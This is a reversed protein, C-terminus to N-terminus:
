FRNDDIDLRVLVIKLIVNHLELDCSLIKQSSNKHRCALNM